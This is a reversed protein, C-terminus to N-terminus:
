FQYWANNGNSKWGRVRGTTGLVTVARATSTQGTVGLYVTGNIPLFTAGDLFEGDSQFIMGGVPGNNIGEFEIAGSNGYGDPTDVMGDLTFTLPPSLTVTDLVPNLGGAGPTLTNLQILQLQNNAPFTIQVYRRNAISYERAQRFTELVQRMAADIKATQLNPKLQTIAIGTIILIISIVVLLEIISFGSQCNGRSGEALPRAETKKM